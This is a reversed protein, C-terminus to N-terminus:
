QFLEAEPFLGSGTTNIQTSSGIWVSRYHIHLSMCQVCSGDSQTFSQRRSLKYGTVESTGTRIQNRHIWWNCVGGMALLLSETLLQRILRLRSAGMSMRVAIEKHRKEARGMLLSAINACTILLLLGSMGMLINLPTLYRESLVHFGHAGSSLSVQRSLYQRRAELDPYQGYVKEMAHTHEISLLAQLQSVKREDPIRAFLHLWFIGEHPAWPQSRDFDGYAASNGAYDVSSQMAIPVWFDPRQDTWLGYFEPVTVGIVTLPQKNVIIVKGLVDPSGAFYNTWFRHSLVVVPHSGIVRDDEGTFLRGLVPKVQLTQYFNGSILQYRVSEKKGDVEISGQVARTTASLSAEKPLKKQMRSFLPQSFAASLVDSDIQLVYLQEPHTVSLSRLIVAEFISFISTTAGIGLSLTLLVAVSLGFNMRMQRCAYGLDQMLNELFNWRWVEGSQEKMQLSNGFQKKAQSRAKAEPVGEKRLKETRLDQHFRIEEELEEDFQNKLFLHQLRRWLNGRM